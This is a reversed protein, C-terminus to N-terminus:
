NNETNCRSLGEKIGSEKFWEEVQSTSNLFARRSPMHFGLDKRYTKMVSDGKGKKNWSDSPSIAEDPIISSIRDGKEEM